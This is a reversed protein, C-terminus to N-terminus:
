SQYARAFPDYDVRRQTRVNQRREIEVITLEAVTIAFDDDNGEGVIEAAHEREPDVRMYERRGAKLKTLYLTRSCALQRPHLGVTNTTLESAKRSRNCFM